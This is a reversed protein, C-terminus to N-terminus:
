RGYSDDLRVQYVTPLLARFGIIDGNALANAADVLGAKEINLHKDGETAGFAQQIAKKKVSDSVPKQISEWLKKLM